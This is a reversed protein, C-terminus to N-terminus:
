QNGAPSVSVPSAKETVAVSSLVSGVVDNLSQWTGM